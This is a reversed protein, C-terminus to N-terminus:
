LRLRRFNDFCKAKIECCLVLCCFNQKITRKTQSVSCVALFMCLLLFNEKTHQIATCPKNLLYTGKTLLDCGGFFEIPVEFLLVHKVKKVMFRLSNEAVEFICKSVEIRKKVSQALPPPQLTLVGTM